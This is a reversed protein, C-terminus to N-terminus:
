AQLSLLTISTVNEFREIVEALNNAKTHHTHGSATFSVSYIPATLPVSSSTSNAASALIDSTSATTDASRYCLKNNRIDWVDIRNAHRRVSFRKHQSLEFPDNTALKIYARLQTETIKLGDALFLDFEKRYQLIYHSQSLAITSNTYTAKLQSLTRLTYGNFLPLEHWNYQNHVYTKFLEGYIYAELIHHNVKSARTKAAQVTPADFEVIHGHIDKARFSLERNTDQHFEM